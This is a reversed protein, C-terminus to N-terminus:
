ILWSLSSTVMTSLCLLESQKRQQWTSISHSFGPRLFAPTEDIFSLKFFLWRNWEEEMFFTFAVNRQTNRRYNDLLLNNTTFSLSHYHIVTFSLSHCHIVTFSKSHNQIVTFSLSHCHINSFFSKRTFVAMGSLLM